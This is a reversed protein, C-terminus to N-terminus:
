WWNLFRYERADHLSDDLITQISGKATILPCSVLLPVHLVVRAGRDMLPWGRLEQPCLNSNDIVNVKAIRKFM